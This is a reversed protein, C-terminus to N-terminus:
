ELYELVNLKNLIGKFLKWRGSILIRVESIQVYKGVVLIEIVTYFVILLAFGFLGFSNM